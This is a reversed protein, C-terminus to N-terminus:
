SEVQHAIMLCTLLSIIADHFDDNNNSNSSNTNNNNVGKEEGKINIVLFGYTLLRLNFSKFNLLSKRRRKLENILYKNQQHKNLNKKIKM